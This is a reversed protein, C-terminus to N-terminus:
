VPEATMKELDILAIRGRGPNVALTDGIRDHITGTIEPSEHIHGHLTLLPQEKEIFERISKSGMNEKTYMVDLKTNHPPAHFVFITNRPDTGKKLEELDKKIESEKREWEKFIFPYPNVCSYGVISFSGLSHRKMHTVKLKGAKEAEHLIDMNVGFDDNGMQVFVETGYEKLESLKPVLYFEAFMRQRFVDFGPSIDGGIIVADIGEHKGMDVLRDIMEKDGHIDTAYLITTM